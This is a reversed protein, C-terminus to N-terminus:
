VAVSQAVNAISKSCGNVRTNISCNYMYKYPLVSAIIVSGIKFEENAFFILM